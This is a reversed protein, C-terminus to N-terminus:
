KIILNSNPLNEVWNKFDVSWSSMKHHKRQAYMTKLQLYNTVIGAKLEYGIPTNMVIAEFLEKKSKILVTSMDCGVYDVVIDGYNYQTILGEVLSLSQLGVLKNCNHHMDGKLITHMKSESSAIDIFHYRSEQLWWSHDATIDAKVVIGKLFSDHGSSPKCGGLTKSLEKDSKTKNEGSKMPFRMVRLASELGFIEVNEIKM